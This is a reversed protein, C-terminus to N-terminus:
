LFLTTGLFFWVQQGPYAKEEPYVPVTPNWAPSSPIFSLVVGPNSLIKTLMPALSFAKELCQKSLFLEGKKITVLAIYVKPTLLSKLM